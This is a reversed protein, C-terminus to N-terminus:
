YLNELQNKFRNLNQIVVHSKMTDNALADNGLSDMVQFYVYYVM